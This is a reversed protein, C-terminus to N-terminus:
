IMSTNCIMAIKQFSNYQKRKENALQVKCHVLDIIKPPTRNNVKESEKLLYISTHGVSIGDVDDTADDIALCGAVRFRRSSLPKSTREWPEQPLQRGRWRLVKRDIQAM